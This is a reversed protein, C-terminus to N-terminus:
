SSAIKNKIKRAMDIFPATLANDFWKREACDSRSARQRGMVPTAAYVPFQPNQQRFVNITGEFPTPGGDPHDRPRSLYGEMAEILPEIVYGNVAVFQAGVLESEPPVTTFPFDTPALGFNYSGYFIGWDSPLRKLASTSEPYFAIDDELMLVNRSGRARELVALHSMFSGRSGVRHFPAAKTFRLASFFEAKANIKRLEAETERRRDTRHVLNIVYVKDFYAFLM